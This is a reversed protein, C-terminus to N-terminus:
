KDDKRSQYKIKKIIRFGILALVVAIITLILIWLWPNKTKIEEGAQGVATINKSDEKDLKGWDIKNLNIWSESEEAIDFKAIESLGNTTAEVMEGTSVKVTNGNTKSKFDVIGEIVKLASRGNKEECVFTTGKIGSVAQNTEIEMTGDKAMKKVNAWIKGAVLKLKSDKEPPASVIINTEPKVVFTSMDIFSIIASSDEETIIVASVPIVDGMKAPRRKGNFVIDVQGTLGAFRAGSDILRKPKSFVKGEYDVEDFAPDGYDLYETNEETKEENNSLKVVPAVRFAVKHFSYSCKDKTKREEKGSANKNYSEGSAKKCFFTLVVYDNVVQGQFSGSETTKSWGETHWTVGKLQYVTSVDNSIIYNGSIKGTDKDYTGSITLSGTGTFSQAESMRFSIGTNQNESFKGDRIQILTNAFIIQYTKDIPAPDGPNNIRYIGQILDFDGQPWNSEEALSVQSFAFFILIALFFLSIREFFNFLNKHLPKKNM